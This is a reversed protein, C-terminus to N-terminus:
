IGSQRLRLNLEVAELHSLDMTEEIYDTAADSVDTFEEFPGHYRGGPLMIYWGIGELAEKDPNYHTLPRNM